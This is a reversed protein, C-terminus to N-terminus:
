VRASHSFEPSLYFENSVQSHSWDLVRTTAYCTCNQHWLLLIGGQTPIQSVCFNQLVSSYVKVCSKSLFNKSVIKTFYELIKPALIYCKKKKFNESRRQM